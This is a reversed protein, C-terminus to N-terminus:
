GPELLISTHEMIGARSKLTKGHALHLYFVAQSDSLTIGVICCIGHVWLDSCIESVRKLPKKNLGVLLLLDNRTIQALASPVQTSTPSPELDCYLSSAKKVYRLRCSLALSLHSTPRAPPCGDRKGPFTDQVTCLATPRATPLRRAGRPTGAGQGSM